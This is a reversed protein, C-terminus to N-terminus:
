VSARYKPYGRTGLDTVMWLTPDQPRTELVDGGYANFLIKTATVFLFIQDELFPM